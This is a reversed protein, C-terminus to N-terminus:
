PRRVTGRSSAPRGCGGVMCAPSGFVPDSAGFTLVDARFEPRVVATLKELLGGPFRYEGGDPGVPVSM